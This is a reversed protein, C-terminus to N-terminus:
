GIFSKIMKRNGGSEPVAVLNPHGRWDTVRMAERGGKRISYWMYGAASLFEWVRRPDSETSARKEAMEILIVPRERELLRRAGVVVPLESGEVDVKILDVPSQRYRELWLDLSTIPIQTARWRGTELAPHDLRNLAGSGSLSEHITVMGDAGGVATLVPIVNTLCNRRITWLLKEFEVPSADFAVVTGGTEMRRSALLTYLGFNAGVDLVNRAFPLMRMFATLEDSEFQEKALVIALQDNADFPLVGEDVNLPLRFEPLFRNRLAQILRSRTRVRLPYAARDLSM